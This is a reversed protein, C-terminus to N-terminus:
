TMWCAQAGPSFPATAPLFRPGSRVYLTCLSSPARECPLLMCSVARLFRGCRAGIAQVIMTDVKDPSFKLKYRSLGHALGLTMSKLSDGVELFSEAHNRIGRLLENISSDCVCNISLKEKIAAGLKADAVGLTDGEAKKLLKKLTKGVKGEIMSAAAAVAEVSDEFKVFKNLSISRAFSASPM